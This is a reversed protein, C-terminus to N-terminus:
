GLDFNLIDRVVDKVVTDGDKVTGDRLDVLVLNLQKTHELVWRWASAVANASALEEEKGAKLPRPPLM